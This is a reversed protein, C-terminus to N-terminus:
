EVIEMSIWSANGNIIALDGGSYQTARIEFYDGPTVVIVSSSIRNVTNSPSYNFFNQTDQCTGNFAASNNKYLEIKCPPTGIFEVWWIEASMKVKTVGAPVTFRTTIPPSGATSHISDTDYYMAGVIPLFTPTSTAVTAGPSGTAGRFSQAPLSTLLSGDVAPLQSSGNLQVLNNAGTGPVM